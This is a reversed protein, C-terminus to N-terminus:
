CVKLHANVLYQSLCGASHSYKTAGPRNLTKQCNVLGSLNSQNLIFSLM